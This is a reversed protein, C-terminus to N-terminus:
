DPLERVLVELEMTTTLGQGNLRHTLRAIIWEASDIQPKWGSAKVPLEPILEPRGEALTIEFSAVGRQLRQWEARAAREANAKTAYTHRLVKLGTASPETVAPPEPLKDSGALETGSKGGKKEKWSVRVGTHARKNGERQIKEWENRARRAAAKQTTYVHTIVRVGGSGPAPTPDENIGEGVLVSERTGKKTDHWYARVGTYSNRDAVSFTHSDGSARTITVSELAKGSATIAHGIPTLLLKAAKVAALSDFDRALRTLFSIDSEDTQDIHPVAVDDLAKAIVAALANRSAIARVIAGLTTDHWSQERKATLTDRLDASTARITLQDPPGTHTTEAVTYRGKDELPLGDWGLAIRIEAGRPPLDLSGDTDDLTIDLQDAEGGRNDTLTLDILRNDVLHTIDRGAVSLRFAPRRPLTIQGIASAAPQIM